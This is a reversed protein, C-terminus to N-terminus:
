SNLTTARGRLLTHELATSSLLRIQRSFFM